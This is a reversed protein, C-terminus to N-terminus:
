SRQRKSRRTEKSQITVMPARTFVNAPGNAQDDNQRVPPPQRNSHARLAIAAGGTNQCPNFLEDSEHFLAFCSKGNMRIVKCLPVNCVACKWKTKLGHRSHPTGESHMETQRCCWICSAQTQTSVAEHNLRRNRRMTILDPRSFFSKRKNYAITIAGSGAGPEALDNIESDSNSEISLVELSIDKALMCCFQRFSLQRSKERQFQHFSLCRDSMLFEECRSLVYSQHANYVMTMILRLWIAAVPGLHSHQAKVNKQFRSYGDIPGKGRNWEAILEPVLHRGAPLPRGRALIMALMANSLELTTQISHRDVAHSDDRILLDEPVANNAVWALHERSIDGIASMYQACFMNTISVHVVRIIKRLSAVVFIADHVGACCMGHILQGRYSADPISEKFVMADEVANVCHYQGFRLAIAIEAQETQATCKSKIEVLVIFRGRMPSIFVGIGDPSFAANRDDKATMLGYENLAELHMSPSHMDVFLGINAMVIPENMTGERCAQSKFPAMFSAKIILSVITPAEEITPPVWSCIRQILLAKTGTMTLHRSRCLDKLEGVTKGLLLEPTYIQEIAIVEVMDVEHQIGICELVAIVNEDLQLHQSQSQKGLLNWIAFASTGTIRFKRLLFWEPTRQTKTLMLVNAREWMSMEANPNPPLPVDKGARSILTFQGPGLEERTTQMLVVRGLGSRHAMAFQKRRSGGVALQRKSWYSAMTGKMQIKQRSGVNQQDFTYPFSNMRKATGVLSAGTEMAFTNVEGDTGGYGRDWFFSNNPFRIHSEVSAGSLSRMIIKVCDITAEARSAVHGALYLSTTNSVAGHHIVGLGKNPNNIQSYGEEVVRHSRLRLLDDDLGINSVGPIFALHSCIKRVQEMGSAVQSNHTMPPLWLGAGSKSTIGKTGGLANLMLAYKKQSIGFAASPFESSHEKNFYLDASVKYFSLFLEVRVFSSIDSESVHNFSSNPPMNSNMYLQLIGLFSPDMWAKLFDGAHVKRIERRRNGFLKQKIRALVMPVEVRAIALLRQDVGDISIRVPSHTVPVWGTVEAEEESDESMYGSLDYMLSELDDDDCDNMNLWM